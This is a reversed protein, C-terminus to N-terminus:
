VGCMRFFGFNCHCIATECLILCALRTSKKNGVLAVRPLDNGSEFKCYIVSHLNCEYEMHGVAQNCVSSFECKLYDWGFFPAFVYM